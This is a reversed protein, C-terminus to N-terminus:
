MCYLFIYLGDLANLIDSSKFLLGHKRVMKGYQLHKLSQKMEFALLCLAKLLAWVQSFRISSSHIM